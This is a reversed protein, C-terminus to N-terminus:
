WPRVQKLKDSHRADEIDYEDSADNAAARVADLARVRAIWQRAAVRSNKRWSPSGKHRRDFTDGVESALEARLGDLVAGHYRPKGAM